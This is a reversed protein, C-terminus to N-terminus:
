RWGVFKCGAPTCLYAEATFRNVLWIPGDSGRVIELRVGLLLLLVALTGLTAKLLTKM